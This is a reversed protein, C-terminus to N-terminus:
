VEQNHLYKKINIIYRSNDNKSLEKLDNIFNEYYNLNFLNMYVLIYKQKEEIYKLLEIYIM